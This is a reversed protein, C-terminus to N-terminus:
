FYFLNLISDLSLVQRSPLELPVRGYVQRSRRSPEHSMGMTSFRAGYTGSLHMHPYESVGVKHCLAKPWYVGSGYTGLAVLMGRSWERPRNPEFGGGQIKFRYNLRADPPEIRGNGSDDHGSPVYQVM